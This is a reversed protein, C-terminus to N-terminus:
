AAPRGGRERWPGSCVTRVSGGLPYRRIQRSCIQLRARLPPPPTPRALGRGRRPLRAGAAIDKGARRGPKAKAGQDGWGWDWDEPGGGRGGGGLSGPDTTPPRM